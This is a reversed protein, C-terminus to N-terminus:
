PHSTGCQIRGILEALDGVTEITPLSNIPIAIDFRTELEMLLDMAALSDLGLDRILNSEPTILRGDPLKARLFEVLESSETTNTSM